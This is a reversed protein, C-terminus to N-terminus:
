RLDSNKLLYVSNQHFLISSDNEQMLLQPSVIGQPISPTVFTDSLTISHALNRQDKSIISITSDNAATLALPQFDTTISSPILHSDSPVSHVSSGSDLILVEEHAFDATHSSAKVSCVSKQHQVGSQKHYQPSHAKSNSGSDPSNKPQSSGADGSSRSSPKREFTSRSLSAFNVISEVAKRLKYISILTTKEHALLKYFAIITIDEL